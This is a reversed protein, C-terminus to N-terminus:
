LLSGVKVHCHDSLNNVQQDEQAASEEIGKINSGIKQDCNLIVNIEIMTPESQDESGNQHASKKLEAPNDIKSYRFIDM